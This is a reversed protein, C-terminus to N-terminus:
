PYSANIVHVTFAHHRYFGLLWLSAADSLAEHWFVFEDNDGVCGSRRDYLNQENDTTLPAVDVAFSADPSLMTGTCAFHLCRVIKEVVANIRSADFSQVLPVLEDAIVEDDFTRLPEQKHHEQLLARDDNLRGKLGCSRSFSSDVVKEKWLRWLRTGPEAGAAVYVRFYEDDLHYRHNCDECVPVTITKKPRPALFLNKPPVHERTIPRTEGCLVCKGIKRQKSVIIAIKRHIDIQSANSNLTRRLRGSSLNPLENARYLKKCRLVLM